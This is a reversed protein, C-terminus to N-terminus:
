LFTFVPNVIEAQPVDKGDILLFEQHPVPVKEKGEETQVAEGSDSDSKDNRIPMSVATLACTSAILVRLM